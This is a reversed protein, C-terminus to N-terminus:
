TSVEAEARKQGARQFLAVRNLGGQKLTAANTLYLFRNPAFLALAHVDRYYVHWCEERAELSRRRTLAAM